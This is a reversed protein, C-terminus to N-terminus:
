DEKRGSFGGVVRGYEAGEIGSDLLLELALGEGTVAELVGDRGALDREGGAGAVGAAAREFDVDGGVVGVAFEDGAETLGDFQREAVGLVLLEDLTWEAEELLEVKGGALEEEADADEVGGGVFDAGEFDGEGDGFFLGGFGRHERKEETNETIREKGGVDGAENEVEIRSV